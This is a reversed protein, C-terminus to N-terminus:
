RTAIARVSRRDPAILAPAASSARHASGDHAGGEIVVGDGDLGVALAGRGDTAVAIVARSRDQTSAIALTATRAARWPSPTRQRELLRARRRRVALNDVDDLRQAVPAADLAANPKLAGDM